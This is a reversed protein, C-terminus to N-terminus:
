HPKQQKFNCYYSFTFFFIFTVEIRNNIRNSKECNRICITRKQAAFREARGAYTPKIEVHDNDGWKEIKNQSIIASAALATEVCAACILKYVLIQFTKISVFNQTHIKLTQSSIDIL